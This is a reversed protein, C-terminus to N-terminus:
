AASWDDRRCLGRSACHECARGEGLARLPEGAHMQRLDDALGERLQAAAKPLDPSSVAKIARTKADLAVYAAQSVPVGLRDLLAGYFPLQPDDLVRAKLSDASSTKFDLLQRTGDVWTDIRDARGVWQVGQLLADDGWVTAELKRESASVARGAAAEAAWWARYAPGWRQLLALFPWSEDDSVGDRQLVHRCAVEWEQVPDGLAHAEHLVAHLWRGWDRADPDRDIEDPDDLGLRVRAFFQYPCDRLAAVQSASWRSPLWGPLPVEARPLSRAQTLVPRRAEQAEGWGAAGLSARLRLLPPAWDLPVGESHRAHLCVVQPVRLLQQLSEWQAAQAAERNPLGLEVALAQGVLAPAATGVSWRGGDCGALVAAGFPRLLARNLPTVVVHPTGSPAAAPMPAQLADDLWALWETGRLPQALLREAASDPWPNRSLWLVELVARWTPQLDEPWRTDELAQAHVLVQRLALLWQKLPRRDAGERLPQAAAALARWAQGANGEPAVGQWRAVRHRRAWAELAAVELGAVPALPSKAWALADDMGGQLAARVLHRVAAAPGQTALSGGTEDQVTLGHPVLLALTQRLLARDIAPLLVPGRGQALAELVQAAASSPLDAAEDLVQVVCAAPEPESPEADALTLRLAPSAAQSLVARALADPRGAELLVWARAPHRFLADTAPPPGQEAWTCALQALAPELEDQGQRALVTRARAWFAARAHPAQAHAAQQLAQALELLQQAHLRDTRVEGGTLRHQRMLAQAQLLDLAADGSLQGARPLAQPGFASALSRTTDLRPLWPGLDGFARRALGLHQAFPLLVVADRVPVDCRGLWDLTQRAFQRWFAEVSADGGWAVSGLEVRDERETM